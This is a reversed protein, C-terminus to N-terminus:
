MLRGHFVVKYIEIIEDVPVKFKNYNPSVAWIFKDSNEDVMLHKIMREYKTIIMYVKDPDVKDWREVPAIAIIDGQEIHPEMSCGVVPFAAIASANPLKIWGHENENDVFKKIVELKGASVPLEKYYPIAGPTKESSVAIANEEGRLLWEASVDPFASLIRQITDATVAADRLQRSLRNQFASDEGAFGSPSISHNKFVQRIRERLSEMINRKYSIIM